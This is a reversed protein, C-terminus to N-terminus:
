GIASSLVLSEEGARTELLAFRPATGAEFDFAVTQVSEFAGSREFTKLTTLENGEEDIAVLRYSVNEAIPLRNLVLHGEGRDTNVMAFGRMGENRSPNLVVREYGDNFLAGFAPGGMQSLNTIVENSAVDNTIRSFEGHLNLIAVGSLITATAFGLAAARWIPTVRNIPLLLPAAAAAKKLDGRGSDPGIVGAIAELGDSHIEARVADVVRSRLSAPPEVEPLVEGMDAFRAQELRIQAKLSEPAEAFAAEFEALEDEELLGCADLLANQILEDPKM